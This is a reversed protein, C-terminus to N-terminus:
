FSVYLAIAARAAASVIILTFDCACGPASLSLRLSAVGISAASGESCVLGFASRATNLKATLRTFGKSIEEIDTSQTEENTEKKCITHALSGPDGSAVAEDRASVKAKLRTQFASLQALILQAQIQKDLIPVDFAKKFAYCLVDDHATGDDGKGGVVYLKGECYAM